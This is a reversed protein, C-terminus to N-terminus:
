AVVSFWAKAIEEISTDLSTKVSWEPYDMALKSLDSYYVRHDGIRVQDVYEWNMKKGTADEAMQIAEIVSCTTSLGGGLNYVEGSRPRAAFAVVFDAIDNAHINDRVQKGGYGFVRYQRGTACCKVLYALFGHLEVGKHAGGTVCGPRLCVTQMGFYRGYEQVMVDGAVKSAGFLSHLCQDISMDEPVGDPLFQEWTYRTEREVAPVLNPRDGYVKSTSLHVFPAEPAHRRVAELLNFTGVANTEFDARPNTAAYDHAPQAATHVVLHPKAAKVITELLGASRIDCSTPRFWSGLADSLEAQTALTSGEPGFFEQRANSDVGTVEYGEAVLRRVCASGVLGYAGTVLARKM